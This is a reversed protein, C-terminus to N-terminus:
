IPIIQIFTGEEHPKSVKVQQVRIEACGPSDDRIIGRYRLADVIWKESLNDEDLLRRRYSTVTVRVRGGKPNGEQAQAAALPEDGAPREVVAGESKAVVFKSWRRSREIHAEYQQQPMRM